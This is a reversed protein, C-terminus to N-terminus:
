ATRTGAGMKAQSPSNLIRATDVEERTDLEELLKRCLKTQGCIVEGTLVIFGRKDEIGFRLHQLAEGDTPSLFPFRPKPMVFFSIKMFDKLEPHM